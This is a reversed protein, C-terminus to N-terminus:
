TLYVTLILLIWRLFIFILRVKLSFVRYLIIPLFFVLSFFILMSVFVSMNDISILNMIIHDIKFFYFVFCFLVNEIFYITEKKKFGM